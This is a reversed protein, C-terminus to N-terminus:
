DPLSRAVRFGFHPIFNREERFDRAAARTFIIGTGVGGGRVVRAHLLNEKTTRPKSDYPGDRYHGIMPDECFEGVNGIIDVLGFANWSGDKDKLGSDQIKNHSNLMSWFYKHDLPDGWYFRTTTGARAAYEWESESPLRLGGGAKSLWQKVIPWKVGDIPLTPGKASRKDPFSRLRDWERQLTEFRGILFPRVQCLHAPSEQILNDNFEPRTWHKTEETYVFLERKHDVTGMTFRGGPILQLELGLKKHLFTAVRCGQGKAGPNRYFRTRLWQYDAGLRRGIDEIILDQLPRPTKGWSEPTSLQREAIWKLSEESAVRGSWQRRNGLRDVAVLQIDTFRKGESLPLFFAGEGDLSVPDGWMSLQCTSSDVVHGSLKLSNKVIYYNERKKAEFEIVPATSDINVWYARRSEGVELFLQHRGDKLELSGSFAGERDSKFVRTAVRVSGEKNLRGYFKLPSRSWVEGGKAAKKSVIQFSDLRPGRVFFYGAVVVLCVFLAALARKGWNRRRGPGSEILSRVSKMDLRKTSDKTMCRACLEDLWPPCNREVSRARRTKAMLLAAFLNVQGLEGYPPEGTLAFFLTAGFSWVDSRASIPGFEGSSDLQEPAMFAPTGVGDKTQTETLVLSEQTKRLWTPDLKVLGFDVIVPRGHEDDIVVNSPKVDRHVVGYSHCLSLADAIQLFLNRLWDYDISQNLRRCEIVYDRLTVGSVLGMALWPIEGDVGFDLLPVINPHNLKSLVKAERQFRQFSVADGETLLLKLAANQRTETHVAHFVVGMGGSSIPELIQFSGLVKGTLEGFRARQVASSFEKRSISFSGSM